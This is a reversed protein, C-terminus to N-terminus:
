SYHVFFLEVDQCCRAACWAVHGRFDELFGAVTFRHVGGVLGGLFGVLMWRVAVYPGDADYGVEEEAAVGGEVSVGVEFFHLGDEDGVVRECGEFVPAADREARAVEDFAAQGGVRAGAHRGM